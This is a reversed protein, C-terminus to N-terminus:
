LRYCAEGYTGKYIEFRDVMEALRAFVASAMTAKRDPERVTVVTCEEHADWSAVACARGIQVRVEDGDRYVHDFSRTTLLARTVAQLPRHVEITTHPM